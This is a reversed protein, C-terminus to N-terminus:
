ESPVIESNAVLMKNKKRLVKCRRLPVPHRPPFKHALLTSISLIMVVQLPQTQSLPVYDTLTFLPVGPLVLRCRSLSTLITKPNM